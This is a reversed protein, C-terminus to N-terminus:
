ERFTVISAQRDFTRYLWYTQDAARYVLAVETNSPLPQRYRLEGQQDYLYTQQNIEDTVAFLQEDTGFFYYQVPIQAPTALPKQWRPQGRMDLVGLQTRDQWVIAFTRGTTEPCLRFAASASPRELQKQAVVKGELDFRVLKGGRTVATLYTDGFQLGQQVFLPGDLRDGLRLPFGPYPEGRRNLVNVTGDAQASVLCDRNRVRLHVLPAAAPYDLVRPQWGELAQGDTDFLFVSGEPTTIALRYQRSNNYDIVAAYQVRASGPMAVPFPSVDRGQPDLLHLHTRTTLFYCLQNKVEIQAVEGVLAEGLDRRFRVQGDAGILHLVNASDQVLVEFARDAPNRVVYPKTRLPQEFDTQQAPAFATTLAPQASDRRALLLANTLWEGQQYRWQYAGFRLQRLPSRADSLSAQWIPAAHARFIDWGREWHIFTSVHARAFTERQWTRLNVSKGWVEENAVDQQYAQLALVSNGMVVTSGVSTYFGQPFGRFPRGLAAEPWEAVPLSRIDTAAYAPVEEGIAPEPEYTRCWGDLWALLAEPDTPRILLLHDPRHADVSALVCHALEGDCLSLWARRAEADLIVAGTSDTLTPVYPTLSQALAAGDGFGLHLVFAARTPVGGLLQPVAPAQERWADLWSADPSPLSLGNGLVLADQVSLDLYASAMGRALHDFYDAQQPALQALWRAMQRYNLYLNADDERWDLLRFTAPNETLNLAEAAPVRRQQAAEEVLAPTFSGIWLQGLQTYTFVEGTPEHRIEHLTLGTARRRTARYGASQAWRTLLRRLPQDDPPQLMFLYQPQGQGGLYVATYLPQQHALAVYATDARLLTDLGALHTGLDAFLSLSLLSNGVESQRFRAWTAFTRPTEILLLARESVLAWPAPTAAPAMWRQYGFYALFLAALVFFTLLLPRTM